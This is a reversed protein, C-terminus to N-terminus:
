RNMLSEIDAVTKPIPTGLVRCGADTILIDDEIRIGGFDLYQEIKDYNLFETFKNQQKWLKFLQPIFYIGPEVTLVFGPHIKKACRLYGLGFENSRKTQDDYGVFNEGLNEMDHVDLGMMHGLGHPMFLAHAGKNVAEQTDGRMLGLQKLGEAITQCAAFHVDRYLVDPKALEIGKLHAALVIEYVVKQKDTFRGGVPMTRTIDSCYNNPLEAGCDLVLLRGRELKQHHHHNHLTQGNMSCIVPFSVNGDHELTIGEVCGAIHHEYYDTNVAMRMATTQMQYAIEIAKEIEIIEAESKVSRQKVIAKILTTSVSNKLDEYPTQLLQSLLHTVKGRYPNCFHIPRHNAIANAIVERLANLPATKQVGVSHARESVTPLDGMWIIDDIDLDNAFIWDQNNDVDIVGFYDPENLGFFYLFNSDQRFKYTNAAYNASAEPNGPLLILGSTVDHKLQERRTIYTDKTFM